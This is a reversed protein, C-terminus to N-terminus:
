VQNCLFRLIKFQIVFLILINIKLLIVSNFLTSFNLNFEYHAESFLLKELFNLLYANSAELELICHRLFHFLVSQMPQHLEILLNILYLTISELSSLHNSWDICLPFM